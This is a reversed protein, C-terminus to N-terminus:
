DDEWLSGAVWDYEGSATRETGGSVTSYDGAATNLYGGNVSAAKGTAVNSWGGSVSSQPGSATNYSGGSVTSNSGSAISWNGGNVTAGQATASNHVGGSVKAAAGSATNGWGGLVAANNGTASHSSGGLVVARHGQAISYGAGMVVANENNITNNGGSVVGNTWSYRHGPGVVLNHSGSKHQMAWVQGAAECDTQTQYDGSSCVEKDFERPVFPQDYGVIVNGLGNPVDSEAGAGNVVQVNVGAFRATPKQPDDLELALYGDLALVTNGELQALRDELDQIRAQLSLVLEKWHVAVTSIVPGDVGDPALEKSTVAGEALNMTQIAGQTIRLSGLSEHEIDRESVCQVCDPDTAPEAQSLSAGLGAAFILIIATWTKV